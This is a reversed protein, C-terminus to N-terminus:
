FNHFIINIKDQFSKQDELYEIKQLKKENRELTKLNLPEFLVPITIIDQITKYLNVFTIKPIVCFGSQILDDFNGLQYTM